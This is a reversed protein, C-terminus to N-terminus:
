LTFNITRLTYNSSSTCSRNKPSTSNTNGRVFHIIGSLWNTMQMSLADAHQNTNGPHHVIHFDYARLELSLRELHQSQAKSSKSLEFWEMPKHDTQIVFPAGILYNRFKRTAWVIALVSKKLLPM